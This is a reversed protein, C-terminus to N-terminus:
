PLSTHRGSILVVCDVRHPIATDGPTHTRMQCVASLAAAFDAPMVRLIALTTALREARRAVRLM